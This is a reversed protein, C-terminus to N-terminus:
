CRPASNLHPFYKCKNELECYTCDMTYGPWFADKEDVECEISECKKCYNDNFWEMWPSGDFQGYKDLWDALEDISMSKFKEFNTM